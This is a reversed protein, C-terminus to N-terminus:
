CGEVDIVSGGLLIVSADKRASRGHGSASKGASGAKSRRASKGRPVTPDASCGFLDCSGDACEGGSSPMSNRDTNPEPQNQNQGGTLGTQGQQGAVPWGRDQASRAAAPQAQAAAAPKAHHQAQAATAPKAHHQAQAATAPKTPNQGPQNAAPNTAVAVIQQSPPRTVVNNILLRGIQRGNNSTVLYRVSRMGPVGVALVVKTGPSLASDSILKTLFPIPQTVVDIRTTILEPAVPHSNVSTPLAVIPHELAPSSGAPHQAAPAKPTGSTSSTKTASTPKASKPAINLQAQQTAPTPKLLPSMAAAPNTAKANAAPHDSAAPPAANLTPQTQPPNPGVVHPGDIWPLGGVLVDAAVVGPNDHRSGHATSDRHSKSDRQANPNDPGRPAAAAAGIGGEDEELGPQAAVPHDQPSATAPTPGEDTLAAVGVVGSGVLILLTSTGATMRVGFPLRAWWSKRPMELLKQWSPDTTQNHVSANHMGWRCACAVGPHEFPQDCLYRVCM